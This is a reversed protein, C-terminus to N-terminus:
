VSWDKPMSAKLKDYAKQGGKNKLVDTWRERNALVNHDTFCLFDYDKQKYWKAIMELYDDGDSWLSHTHLNGRYWQLKGEAELVRAEVPPSSEQGVFLLLGCALCVAPAILISRRTHFM